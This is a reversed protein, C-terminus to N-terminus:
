TTTIMPVPAALDGPGSLRRGGLSVPTASVPGRGFAARLPEQGGQPHGPEAEHDTVGIDGVGVGVGPASARSGTAEAAAGRAGSAGDATRAAGAPGVGGTGLVAGTATVLVLARRAGHAAPHGGARVPVGLAHARRQGACGACGCDAEPEFEEFVPVSM